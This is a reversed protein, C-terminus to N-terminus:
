LIGLFRPRRSRLLEVERRLRRVEQRARLLALKLQEPEEPLPSPSGFAESSDAHVSAGREPCPSCGQGPSGSVPGLFEEGEGDRCLAEEREGEGPDAAPPQSLRERIEQSSLGSKEWWWIMHLRAFSLTDLYTGLGRRHFSIFEPFEDGLRRMERGELGLARLVEEVPILGDHEIRLEM